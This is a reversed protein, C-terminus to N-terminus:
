AGGLDRCQVRKKPYGVEHRIDEVYLILHGLFPDPCWTQFPAQKGKYGELHGFM